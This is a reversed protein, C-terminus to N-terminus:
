TDAVVVHVSVSCRGAFGRDSGTLRSNICSTQYESNDVRYLGVIVDLDRLALDDDVGYQGDAALM